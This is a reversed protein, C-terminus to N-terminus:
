FNLIRPFDDFIICQEARIRFLACVRFNEDVGNLVFSIATKAARCVQARAIEQALRAIPSFIRVNRQQPMFDVCREAAFGFEGCFADVIRAGAFGAAAIQGGEIDKGDVVGFRHVDVVRQRKLKQGVIARAQPHM